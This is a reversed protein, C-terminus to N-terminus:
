ACSALTIKRNRGFMAAYIDYIVPHQLTLAAKGTSDSGWAERVTSKGHQHLGCFQARHTVAFPGM